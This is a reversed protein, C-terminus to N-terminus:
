LAKEILTILNDTQFPKKLFQEAGSNLAKQKITYDGSTVFVPAYTSHYQFKLEQCETIEEVSMTDIIFLDASQEKIEEGEEVFHVEYGAQELSKNILFLWDQDHSRLFIKKM